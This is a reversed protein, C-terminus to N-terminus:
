DIVIRFQSMFMDRLEEPTQSRQRYVESVIYSSLEGMIQFQMKGSLNDHENSVRQELYSKFFDTLGQQSMGEDRMMAAGQMMQGIGLTMQNLGTQIGDKQQSCLQLFDPRSQPHLEWLYVGRSVGMMYFVREQRSIGSPVLQEVMQELSINRSVMDYAQSNLTSIQQCNVHLPPISGQAYASNRLLLLFLLGMVAVSLRLARTVMNTMMYKETM